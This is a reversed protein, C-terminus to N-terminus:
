KERMFLAGCSTFVEKGMWGGAEAAGTHILRPVGSYKRTLTASNRAPNAVKEKSYQTCGSSGSSAWLKATLGAWLASASDTDVAQRAPEMTSAPAKDSPSPRRLSINM